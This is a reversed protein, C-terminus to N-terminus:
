PAACKLLAKHTRPFDVAILLLSLPCPARAIFPNAPRQWLLCVSLDPYFTRWFGPVLPDHKVFCTEFLFHKVPFMECFCCCIDTDWFSEPASWSKLSPPAPIVGDMLTVWHPSALAPFLADSRPFSLDVPQTLWTVQNKKPNKLWAGGGQMWTIHIVWRLGFRSPRVKM